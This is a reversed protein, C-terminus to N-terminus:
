SPTEPTLFYKNSHKSPNFHAMRLSRQIIKLFEKNQSNGWFVALPSNPPYVHRIRKIARNNDVVPVAAYSALALDNFNKEVFKEAKTVASDRDRKDTKTVKPDFNSWNWNSM